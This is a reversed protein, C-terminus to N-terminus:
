TILYHYLIFLCLIVGVHILLACGCICPYIVYDYLSLYAYCKVMCLYISLCLKFRLLLKVLWLLFNKGMSRGGCTCSKVM